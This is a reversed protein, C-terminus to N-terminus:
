LDIIRGQFRETGPQQNTYKGQIGLVRHQHQEELHTTAAVALFIVVYQQQTVGCAATHRDITHGQSRETGPQQNIYKGQIFSLISTNNRWIRRRQWRSFSGSQQQQNVGWASTCQEIQQAGKNIAIIQAPQQSAQHPSLLKLYHGSGRSLFHMASTITVPCAKFFINTSAYWVTYIILTTAAKTCKLSQEDKRNYQTERAAVQTIAQLIKM